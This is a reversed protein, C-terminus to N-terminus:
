VLEKMLSTAPGIIYGSNICKLGNLESHWGKLTKADGKVWFDARENLLRGYDKPLFSAVIEAQFIGEHRYRSTSFLYHGVYPQEKM